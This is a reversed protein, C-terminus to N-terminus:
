GERREREAEKAPILLQDWQMGLRARDEEVALAASARLEVQDSGLLELAEILHARQVGSFPKKTANGEAADVTASDDLGVVDAEAPTCTDAEVPATLAGSVAFEMTSAPRGTAKLKKHESAQVLKAQQRSKKSSPGFPTGEYGRKRWTLLMNVWGVSRVVGKAMERQTAGQDQAAALDEAASRLAVMGSDIKRRARLLLDEVTIEPLDLAAIDERVAVQQQDGTPANLSNDETMTM